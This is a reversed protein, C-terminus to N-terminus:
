LIVVLGTLSDLLGFVALTDISRAWCAVPADDNTSLMGAHYGTTRKTASSPWEVVGGAGAILM